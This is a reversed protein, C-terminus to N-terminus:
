PNSSASAPASPVFWVPPSFAPEEWVHLLPGPAPAPGDPAGWFVPEDPFPLAGWLVPDDPIVTTGPFVPAGWLGPFVPPLVPAGPLGPLDTVPM